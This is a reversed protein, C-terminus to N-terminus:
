EQVIQEGLLHARHPTCHTFRSAHGELTKRFPQRLHVVEKREEWSQVVGIFHFHTIEVLNEQIYNRICPSFLGVKLSPINLYFGVLFSTCHELSHFDNFLDVFPSCTRLFGSPCFGVTVTVDPSLLPSFGGQRGVGLFSVSTLALFVNQGDLHYAFRVLFSMSTAHGWVCRM